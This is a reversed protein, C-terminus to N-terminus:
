IMAMEKMKTSLCVETTAPQLSYIWPLSLTWMQSSFIKRLINQYVLDKLEKKSCFYARINAALLCKTGQFKFLYLQETPM